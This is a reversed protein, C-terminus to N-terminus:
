WRTPPNQTSCTSDRWYGSPWSSARSRGFRLAWGPAFGPAPMGPRCTRLPVLEHLDQCQEVLASFDVGQKVRRRLGVRRPQAKMRLAAPACFHEVNGGLKVVQLGALQMRRKADLEGAPLWPERRLLFLLDRAWLLLM